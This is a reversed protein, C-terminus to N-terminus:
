KMEKGQIGHIRVSASGGDTAKLWIIKIKPYNLNLNFTENKKVPVQDLLDHEGDENTSIYVESDGDNIMSLSIWPPSIDIQKVTNTVTYKLSKTRTPIKSEELKRIKVLQAAQVSQMIFIAVNPDIREQSIPRGNEVIEVNPIVLENSM